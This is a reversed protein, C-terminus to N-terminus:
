SRVNVLARTNFIRATDGPHKMFRQRVSQNSSRFMFSMVRQSPTIYPIVLWGRSGGDGVLPDALFAIMFDRLTNLSFGRNLWYEQAGVSDWIPEQYRRLRQNLLERRKADPVLLEM